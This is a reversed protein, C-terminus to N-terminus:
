VVTVKEFVVIAAGANLIHVLYHGPPLLTGNSYTLPISANFTTAVAPTSLCVSNLESGGSTEVVMRFHTSSVNGTLAATYNTGALQSGGSTSLVTVLPAPYFTTPQQTSNGSNIGHSWPGFHVHAGGGPSEYWWQWQFQIQVTGYTANAMVALWSTTLHASAASFTVNASLTHNASVPKSWGGGTLVFSRHIFFFTQSGGGSVPFVTTVSPINLKTNHSPPLHPAQYEFQAGFVTGPSLTAQGGSPSSLPILLSSPSTTQHPLCTTNGSVEIAGSGAPVSAAPGPL